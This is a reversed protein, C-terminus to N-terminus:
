MRILDAPISYAALDWGQLRSAARSKASLNEFNTITPNKKRHAHLILDGKQNQSHKQWVPIPSLQLTV